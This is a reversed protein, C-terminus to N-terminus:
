KPIRESTLYRMLMTAIEARTANDRPAFIVRGNKDVAKGTVYRVKDYASSGMNILDDKSAYAWKVADRAWDAIDNKDAFGSVTSYGYGVYEGRVSSAYRYLITCFEQRTVNGDPDFRDASKGNVVGNLAAWNVADYYWSTTDGNDVFPEFSDPIYFTPSGEYRYLVTVVMARSMNTNPQFKSGMGNMLGSVLVFEVADAFWQTENLDTFPPAYVAEYTAYVTIPGTIKTLNAPTGDKGVWSLFSYSHYASNEKQGKAAKAGKGYEVEETSYVTVGDDQMYTVTYPRLKSTFTPVLSVDSTIKTLDVDKGDFTVWKDFTYTYKEDAAKEPIVSTSASANKELYLNEDLVTTKDESYFIVNYRLDAEEYTATYVIEGEAKEGDAVNPTLPTMSLAPSWGTFKYSKTATSPKIPTGLHAPYEPIEGEPVEVRCLEKGDYGKFVVTYRTRLDIEKFIPYLDMDRYVAEVRNGQEDCWGDFRYVIENKDSSKTPNSGGAKKYIEEPSLLKNKVCSLGSESTDFWLDREANTYKHKYTKLVSGDENHFTVTPQLNDIVIALMQFTANENENKAVRDSSFNGFSNSNFISFGTINERYKNHTGNINQNLYIYYYGNKLELYNIPKGDSTYKSGLHWEDSYDQGNVSAVFNDAIIPTDAGEVKYVVTYGRATPLMEVPASLLQQPESGDGIKVPESDSLDVGFAPTYEAKVTISSDFTGSYVDIIEGNFSWGAFKYIYIDETYSPEATAFDTLKGNEDLALKTIEKGNRDLFTISNGTIEANERKTMTKMFEAIKPSLIDYGAGNPHLKDPLYKTTTAEMETTILTNEHMDFYAVDWKDCIKKAIEFYTGLTNYGSLKFNCLYGIAATDGYYYYADFLMQEFAGAFTDCDFYAPDYGSTIQGLPAGGGADNVGGHLLVVDFDQYKAYSLQQSITGFNSWKLSSNSVTWGGDSVNTYTMGLTQSTRYAWGGGHSSDDSIARTISDGAFLARKGKLPNEEFFAKYSEADFPTNETLLFHLAVPNNAAIWIYSCGSPIEYSYVTGEALTTVEDCDQATIKKIFTKRDAYLALEVKDDPCPGFYITSGANVPINSNCSYDTVASLKGDDKVYNGDSVFFNYLNVIDKESTQASTGIPLVFASLVMLVCLLLSLSKKM